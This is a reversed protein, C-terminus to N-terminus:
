DLIKENKKMYFPDIINEAINNCHDSVRELNSLIDVYHIDYLISKAKDINTLQIQRYKRELTDVYAETKIIEHALTADQCEFAKISNAVQTVIIDFFNNLNDFTIKDMEIKQEYRDNLFEILNTAHDGIRELDRITDIYVAQFISQRTSMSNTHLQMLYDHILHNYTDVKDELSFCKNFYEINNDNLYEKACIIMELSNKSMDIISRRASELALVPSEVLLDYNLLKASIDSHIDKEPLFKNIVKIFYKLFILVFSTTFVNFAMHILALMLMNNSEGFLASNVKLSLTTIPNIFILFVIAGFLKFLVNSAAAKKAEYNSGLSALIGTITTGINAGLILPITTALPLVGADYLKQLIGIFASSSQIIATLLVGVLFGLIKIGSLTAIMSEFFPMEGFEKLGTGMLDLGLFLLGLGLVLGGTEKIKRREIFSIILAGIFVIPLSYNALNIGIIFATITTGINAGLLIPVAQTFSLLGASMLGIVIVSTASSSQGVLTIFLGVLMGRFPNSTTKQVIMKLKPGAINKLSASMLYMGYFFLGLGGLAFFIITSLSDNALEFISLNIM